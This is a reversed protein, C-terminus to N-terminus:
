AEEEGSLYEEYEAESVFLIYRGEVYGMFGSGTYYGKMAEGEPRLGRRKKVPGNYFAATYM